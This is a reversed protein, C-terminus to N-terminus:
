KNKSNKKGRKFASRLKKFFKIFAHLRAGHEALTARLEEIDEGVESSVREAEGSIKKISRLISVIYYFGMLLAGAILVVAITIIAM